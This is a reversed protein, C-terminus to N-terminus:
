LVQNYRPKEPEVEFQAADKYLIYPTGTEMQADLVRNWLARARVTKSAAGSNEYHEYLKKYEAGYVDSLGPCVHPCFLSWSSNSKIRKWSCIRYGYGTFCIAPELM